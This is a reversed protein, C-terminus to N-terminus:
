NGYRDSFFDALENHSMGDINSLEEYYKKRIRNLQKNRNEITTNLSYLNNNYYLFVKELNIELDKIDKVQKEVKSKEEELLENFRLEANVVAQNVFDKTFSWTVLGGIVLGVLLGLIISTLNTLKM